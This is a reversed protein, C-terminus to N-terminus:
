SEKEKLYELKIKRLFSNINKATILKINEYEFNVYLEKIDNDKWNFDLINTKSFKFNKLFISYVVDGEKNYNNIKLYRINKNNIIMYNIYEFPQLNGYIINLNFKMINNEIAYCSESLYENEFMVEYQSQHITNSYMQNYNQKTFHPLSM